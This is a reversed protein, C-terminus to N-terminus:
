NNIKAKKSFRLRHLQRSKIASKQFPVLYLVAHFYMCRDTGKVANSRMENSITSGISKAEITSEDVGFKDVLM